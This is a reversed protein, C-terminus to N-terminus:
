RPLFLNLIASVFLIGYLVMLVTKNKHFILYYLVLSLGVNIALLVMSDLTVFIQLVFLIIAVILYTLLIWQRPYEVESKFKVNKNTKLFLNIILISIGYSICGVVLIFIMSTIQGVLLIPFTVEEIGSERLQRLFEPSTSAYIYGVIGVLITLLAVSKKFHKQGFAIIGTNNQVDM